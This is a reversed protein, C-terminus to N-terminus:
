APRFRAELAKVADGTGDEQAAIAALEKAKQQMAQSTTAQRINAALRAPTAKWFNLPKTAAGAKHLLGGWASQEFIFPVPIAPVGGKLAAHTTGAGGHVVMASCRPVVVEHPAWRLFYVDGDRGEEGVKTQVIARVGAAKAAGTM